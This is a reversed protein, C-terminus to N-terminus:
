INQIGDDSVTLFIPRDHGRRKHHVTRDTAVEYTNRTEGSKNVGIRVWRVTGTEWQAPRKRYNLVWVKTDPLAKVNSTIEMPKRNFFYSSGGELGKWNTNEYAPQAKLM